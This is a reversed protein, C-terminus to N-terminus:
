KPGNRTKAFTNVITAVKTLIYFSINLSLFLRRLFFLTLLSWVQLNRVSKRLIAIFVSWIEAQLSVPCHDLLGLMRSINKPEVIVFNSELDFEGGVLQFSICLFM